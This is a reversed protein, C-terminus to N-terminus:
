QFLTYGIAVKAWENPDEPIMGPRVESMKKPQEFLATEDGMAGSDPSRNRGFQRQVFHTKSPRVKADLLFGKKLVYRARDRSHRGVTKARDLLERRLPLFLARLSKRRKAYEHNEM